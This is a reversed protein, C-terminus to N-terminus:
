KRKAYPLTQDLRSFDEDCSDEAMEMIADPGQRARNALTFANVTPRIITEYSDLAQINVGQNRAAAGLVLTDVIAQSAGSSGLHYTAHAADWILTVRGDRWRELPKRDIMPYEFVTEAGEILAAANIWGFDWDKFTPAFSDKTVQRSWDEQDVQTTPDVSTEAIWNITLLGTEPDPNSLVETM